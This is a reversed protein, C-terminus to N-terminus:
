IIRDIMERATIVRVHDKKVSLKRCLEDLKDEEWIWESRSNQAEATPLVSHLMLVLGTQDPMRDLFRLIMEPRDCSKVVISYIMKDRDEPLFVNDKNYVNYAWQFGAYYSLVYLAKRIIGSNSKRRGKRIYLVKDKQERITNIEKESANSNPVSFGYASPIDNNIWRNMKEYAQVFDAKETTHKDGHLGIEWGKDAMTRIEEVSLARRPSELVPFGKWSGDAFGTTVFVTGKMGYREMVPLAVSYNDERGDDFTISVYKM